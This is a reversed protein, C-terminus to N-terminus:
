MTPRPGPIEGCERFAYSQEKMADEIIQLAQLATARDALREGNILVRFSKHKWFDEGDGNTNLEVIM